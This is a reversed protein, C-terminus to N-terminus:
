YNMTRSPSDCSRAYSIKLDNRRLKRLGGHEEFRRFTLVLGKESGM